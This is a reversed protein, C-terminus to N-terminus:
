SAGGIFNKTSTERQSSEGPITLSPRSSLSKRATACSTCKTLTVIKAGYSSKILSFIVKIEIKKDNSALGGLMVM